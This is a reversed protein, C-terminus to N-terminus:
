ATRHDLLRGLRWGSGERFVEWIMSELGGRGRQGRFAWDCRVEAKVAISGDTQWIMGIHVAYGTPPPAMQGASDTSAPCALLGRPPALEIGRARVVLRLAVFTVSDGAVWLMDPRSGGGRMAFLSPALLAALASDAAPRTQSCTGHVRRNQQFSAAEWVGGRFVARISGPDAWMRGQECRSFWISATATDAQFTLGAFLVRVTGTAGAPALQNPGSGELAREFAFAWDWPVQGVPREITIPARHDPSGHETEALVARAIAGIARATERQTGQAVLGPALALAALVVAGSGFARRSRPGSIMWRYSQIREGWREAALRWSQREM